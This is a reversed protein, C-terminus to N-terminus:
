QKVIILRYINVTSTAEPGGKEQNQAVMSHCLVFPERLRRDTMAVVAGHELAKSLNDSLPGMVLDDDCEWTTSYAYVATAGKLVNGLAPDFADGKVFKTPLANMEDLFGLSQAKGQAAIASEHHESVIEVGISEQWVDKPALVSAALTLRGVGSGLDVFTGRGHEHHRGDDERLMSAMVNLIELFFSIPFEGYTMHRKDVTPNANLFNSKAMAAQMRRVKDHGYITQLEREVDEVSVSVSASAGSAAAAAAPPTTVQLLSTTSSSPRRSVNKSPQIQFGTTVIIVLSPLILLWLLSRLTWLATM